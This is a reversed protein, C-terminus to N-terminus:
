LIEILSRVKKEKVSENEKNFFENQAKSSVISFYVQDTQSDPVRFFDCEQFLIM